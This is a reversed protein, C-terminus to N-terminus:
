GSASTFRHVRDFILSGYAGASAAVHDDHRRGTRQPGVALRGSCGATPQWGPSRDRRDVRACIEDNALLDADDARPLGEAPRKAHRQVLWRARWMVLSRCQTLTTSDPPDLIRRGWEGCRVRVDVRRRGAM